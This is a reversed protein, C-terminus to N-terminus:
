PRVSEREQWIKIRVREEGPPSSLPVQLIGISLSITISITTVPLSGMTPAALVFGDHQCRMAPPRQGDAQQSRFHVM